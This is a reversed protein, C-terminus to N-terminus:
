SLCLAETTAFHHNLSAAATLPAILRSQWLTLNVM